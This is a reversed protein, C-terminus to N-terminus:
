SEGEVLQRLRHSGAFEPDHLYARVAERLETLETVLQKKGPYDAVGLEYNLRTNEARLETLESTLRSLVEYGASGVCEKLLAEREADEKLHADLAEEAKGHLQRADNPDTYLAERVRELDTM